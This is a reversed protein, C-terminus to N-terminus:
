TPASGRGGSPARTRSGTRRAQGAHRRGGVRRLVRLDGPRAVDFLRRKLEIPCPAAAHIVQRLSSVDYRARVDEPLAMLRHLQTPVMAVDTVRYRDILQLAREADWQEMLVVTHELHLSFYGFSLPSLHYMPSTVLHVADGGPEIDYRTLNASYARSGADRSRVHPLDRQVAKPRGTTGSTYQMFQGAVRDDPTRTPSTPSCRRGLPTFGPITVASRSGGAPPCAPRRRGGRAAVTPSRPTPSWRRRARTVSSTRRGRGRHPPHEAARVALRAQFVALLTQFLEASNRTLTAVPDFPQVGRARLAHVLRNPARSCSARPGRASRRRRDARCPRAGRAGRGLVGEAGAGGRTGRARPRATERMPAFRGWGATLSARACSSFQPLWAATADLMEDTMDAIADYDLRGALPDLLMAEFVADRDGSVAAEVTLEQSASVRRLCEAMPAPLAVATAGACATATSSACARSRRAPPLDAVQGDNPMNLPFRGPQDLLLCQIVPAVMEGSPMSEVTTPVRADGRARRHARGPRARPGRDHHPRRGVARGVRVGRHPLRPLVRRPPPRRRGAARRLPRVARAEGPEAAPRGQDLRPGASLKEFELGDPLAMALPEDRRAEADDLVARLLEFGDDGAVDLATVFPLHNVGAVTLTLDLFGVDLLLSLLFQTITIEHCLGVTKLPTERTVARCITTMPNTLNLLWADPCM